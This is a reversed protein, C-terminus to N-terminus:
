HVDCTVYCPSCACGGGAQHQATCSNKLMRTADEALSESPACFAVSFHTPMPVSVTFPEDWGTAYGCAVFDGPDRVEILPNFGGLDCMAPITVGLYNRGRNNRESWAVAGQQLTKVTQVTRQLKANDVFGSARVAAILLIVVCGVALALELM